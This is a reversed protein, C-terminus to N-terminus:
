SLSAALGATATVLRRFGAYYRDYVAQHGANPVFQRRLTVMGRLAAYDDDM